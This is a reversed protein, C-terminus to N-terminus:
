RRHRGPTRPAPLSRPPSGSAARASDTEAPGRSGSGPPAQRGGAAGAGWAVIDARLKAPRAGGDEEEHAPPPRAAPTADYGDGQGRGRRRQRGGAELGPRDRGHRRQDGEADPQRVAPRAQAAQQKRNGGEGDRRRRCGPRARRWGDGQHARDPGARGAQALDADRHFRGADVSERRARNGGGPLRCGIPKTAAPAARAAPGARQRRAAREGAAATKTPARLQAITVGYVSRSSKPSTLTRSALTAAWSRASPPVRAPSHGTTEAITARYSDAGPRPAGPVTTASDTPSARTDEVASARLASPSRDGRRHAGAGVRPGAPRAIGYRLGGVGPTEFASSRIRQVPGLGAGVWRPGRM